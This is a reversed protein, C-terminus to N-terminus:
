SPRGDDEGEPPPAPLAPREPQDEGDRYIETIAPLYVTFARLNDPIQDAKEAKHVDVLIKLVQARVAMGPGAFGAAMDLALARKGDEIMEATTPVPGAEVQDKKEQGGPPIVELPVFRDPAKSSPRGKKRRYAPWNANIWHQVTSRPAGVARAIDAVALQGAKVLSEIRDRFDAFRLLKAKERPKECPEAVPAPKRAKTM